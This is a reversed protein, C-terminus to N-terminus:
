KKIYRKWFLIGIISGAIDAFWDGIDLGRNPIYQHQIFEITLGYIIALFFIIIINNQFGEFAWLWIVLFVSFIGLHIWKDIWIKDLWDEDPFSSGPLCFLISIFVLYGFAISYRQWRPLHM